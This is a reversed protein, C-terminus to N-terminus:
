FCKGAVISIKTISMIAMNTFTLKKLPYLQKKFSPKFKILVPRIIPNKKFFKNIIGGFVAIFGFGQGQNQALLIGIKSSRNLFDLIYGNNGDYLFFILKGGVGLDECM